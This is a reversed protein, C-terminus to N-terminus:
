QITVDLTEEVIAKVDIKESLIDAVISEFQAMQEDTMYKDVIQENFKYGIAGEALGMSYSIPEWTGDMMKKYVYEIAPPYVELGTVLIVNPALAFHDSCCTAALGNFEEAVSYIANGAPDADQMVFDIGSSYLSYAAQQAGASDSGKTLYVVSVEVDPNIYKAGAEYGWLTKKISPIDIGIAGVKNTETAMGAVVGVLFGEVHLALSVSGLNTGNSPSSSTTLFKVNPYDAAVKLAPDVSAAGHGIILEYGAEAFSRFTEEYESTPANERYTFEIGYKDQLNLMSNYILSNFGSDNIAGPCLFAIKKPAASESPKTEPVATDVVPLKTAEVSVTTPSDEMAKPPETAAPSCSVMSFLMAIALVIVFLRKM